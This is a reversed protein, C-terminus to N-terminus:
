SLWLIDQPLLRLLTTRSCEPGSPTSPHSAKVEKGGWRRQGRPDGKLAPNGRGGLTGHGRRLWASPEPYVTSSCRSVCILGAAMFPARSSFIISSQLFSSGQLLTERTLPKPDNKEWRKRVAFPYTDDACKEVANCTVSNLSHSHKRNRPSLFCDVKDSKVAGSKPEESAVLLRRRSWCVAWESKVWVSQHVRLSWSRRAPFFIPQFNRWQLHVTKRTLSKPIPNCSWIGSSFDQIM